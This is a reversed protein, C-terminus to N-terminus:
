RSGKCSWPSGGTVFDGLHGRAAGMFAHPTLPCGREGSEQDGYHLGGVGPRPTSLSLYPSARGRSSRM